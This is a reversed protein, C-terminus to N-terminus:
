VGMSGLLSVINNVLAALNPHAGEFGSVSDELEDILGAPDSVAAEQQLEREVNDAIQGLRELAERDGGRSDAIAARLRELEARLRDIAM